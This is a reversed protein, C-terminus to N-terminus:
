RALAYGTIFQVRNYIFFDRARLDFGIFLLVLTLVKVIQRLTLDAETIIVLRKIGHEHAYEYQETLSPASSCM